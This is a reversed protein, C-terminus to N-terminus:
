ASGQLMDGDQFSQHDYVNQHYDLLFTLLFHEMLFMSRMFLCLFHLISNVPYYLTLKPASGGSAAFRLGAIKEAM